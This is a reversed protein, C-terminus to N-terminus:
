LEARGAQLAVVSTMSALLMYVSLRVAEPSLDWELKVEPDIGHDAANRLHGIFNMYGMHKTALVGADKLAMAKQIVGNKGVLNVVPTHGGALKILFNECANAAELVVSEDHEEAVLKSLTVRLHTIIDDREDQVYAYASEGLRVRIFDEIAAADISLADAIALFEAVAESHTVAYGENTTYTLSGSFQGLSVLTERIEGEHNDYGFRLKTEKAGRLSDRHFALRQKFYRYPGFAELAFRLVDIRRQESAEAFYHDYPASPVYKSATRAVLGLKEAVALAREVSAQPLNVHLAVDAASAPRSVLTVAEVADVVQEATCQELDAM